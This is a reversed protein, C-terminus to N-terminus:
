SDLTGRGDLKRGGAHGSLLRRDDKLEHRSVSRGANSFYCIEFIGLM